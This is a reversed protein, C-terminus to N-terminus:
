KPIHARLHRPVHAYLKDHLAPDSEAFADRIARAYHRAVSGSYKYKSANVALAADAERVWRPDPRVGLFAELAGLKDRDHFESEHFVMVRDEGVLRRLDVAAKYTEVIRTVLANRTAESPDLGLLKIHNDFSTLHSFMVAMPNRVVVLVVLRKERRFLEKVRDKGMRDLAAGFRQSEKWVLCSPAPKVLRGGYREGYLKKLPYQPDYAHSALISGGGPGRARRGSLKVAAAVFNGFRAPTYEALFDNEGRRMVTEMGHNLVQCGPHLALVGAVLTTLSRYTGM